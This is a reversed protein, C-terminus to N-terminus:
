EAILTNKAVLQSNDKKTLNITMADSLQPKVPALETVMQKLTSSIDAKVESNFNITQVPEAKLVPTTKAFAVGTTSIGTIVLAKILLKVLKM